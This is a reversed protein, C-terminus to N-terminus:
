QPCTPKSGNAAGGCEAIENISRVLEELASRLRSDKQLQSMVFSCEDYGGPRVLSIIIEEHHPATALQHRQLEAPIDFLRDHEPIRFDTPLRRMWGRLLVEGRVVGDEWVKVMWHPSPNLTTTRLDGNHLIRIHRM